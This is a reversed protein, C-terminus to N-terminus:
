ADTGLKNIVIEAHRAIEEVAQELAVNRGKGGQERVHLEIDPHLHIRRWRDQPPATEVRLMAALTDGQLGELKQRIEALPMNSDKLTTIYKLRLLHDPGYTAGVGRGNAAPLLGQTIYYRINRASIGTERELDGITYRYPQARGQTTAASGVPLSDGRARQGRGQGQRNDEM